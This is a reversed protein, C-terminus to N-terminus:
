KLARQVVSISLPHIRQLNSGTGVCPDLIPLCFRGLSAPWSHSILPALVIIRKETVGLQAESSGKQHKPNPIPM